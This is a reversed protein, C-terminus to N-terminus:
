AFNGKERSIIWRGRGRGAGDITVRVFYRYRSAFPLSSGSTKYWSISHSVSLIPIRNLRLAEWASHTFADASLTLCEVLRPFRVPSISGPLRIREGVIYLRDREREREKYRERSEHGRPHPGFLRGREREERM